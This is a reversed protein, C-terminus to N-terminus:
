TLEDYEPIDTLFEYSKRTLDIRCCYHKRGNTVLLYRAHYMENYRTAQNFTRQSIEVVPAKCEVIMAPEGTRDYILLDYRESLRNRRFGKEISMLTRPYHKDESLYKIINQRVWEEPSLSVYRRRIEDFIYKKDGDQKISFSYTPLNLPEM